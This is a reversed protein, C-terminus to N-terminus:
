PTSNNSTSVCQYSETLPIFSLHQILQEILEQQMEKELLIREYQDALDQNPNLQHDRNATMSQNFQQSKKLSPLTLNYHLSLQLRERRTQGQLSYVLSNKTIASKTVTLTPCNQSTSNPSLVDIGSRKLNERTTQYFRDYPSYPLLIIEKVHIIHIKKTGRLYFGCGSISGLILINMLIILLAYISKKFM